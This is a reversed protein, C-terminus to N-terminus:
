FQFSTKISVSADKRKPDIDPELRIKLNYDHLHADVAADFIGYFYFLVMYWLYTNRKKFARDYEANWLTTYNRLIDAPVSQTAFVKNRKDICQNMATNNNYAMYSLMTQVTLILGAKAFSGNYLQGLGLFPIASLLAARSPIRPTDNLFRNSSKLADLINWVYIGAFWGVSQKFINRGLQQQYVALDYGMKAELLNSFYKNYDALIPNTTELLLKNKIIENEYRFIGTQLNSTYHSYRNAAFAGAAFDAFLFVAGKVTKHCYLQGGGPCLLSFLMSRLPNYRKPPSAAVTDRFLAAQPPNVYYIITDKGSNLRGLDTGTSDRVEVSFVM